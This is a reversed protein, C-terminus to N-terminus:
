RMYINCEREKALTTSMDHGAYVKYDGALNKLKRLSLQMKVPDSTPFDTRGISGCFLTDGSFIVKDAESIYCGSGCTHGPTLIFKLETEGLNIVDGDELTIDAYFPEELTTGVMYSLNLRDDSLFPADASSIVIQADFLKAYHYASGIHDFHGHTLIVFKVNEKGAALLENTVRVDEFGPDILATAGTANDTVVYCNTALVGVQFAKVSIM